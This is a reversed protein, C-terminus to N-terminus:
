VSGQLARWIREPTAPMDIHHVGKQSLADSVASIVAPLSGVVGAEGAGKVGLPNTPTPVPHSLVTLAPLDSARPMAYDMFSATLLQGSGEEYVLQELLAQGLGQAVGGQIQGAMLLPNLVRGVDDAVLYSLVELGGTEPDLEVECIHCGNPFSCNQTSDFSEAAYSRKRQRALEQLTLGRDTGVILFRGDEFVIDAEAAELEEAADPKAEAIIQEAVKGLSVGIAAASRSGFTGTGKEIVGTDGDRFRIDEVEIGLTEGLLQAFTTRHGQGTDSTGVRLNAGGTEDIALAAFEPQPSGIPGGAIEIPNAIGLGRLKGRAASEERRASFGAWDAAKLAKEMVAPFDGSDYSYTLPTKYPMEDPQIFNRRRVEPLDLGLDRAVLDCLREIIYTAEPRGAGRYPAMSQTHTHIGEIEVYVPGTKYVGVVTGINNVMPNTGTQGLYAGINALISVKLGKFRGEEDYAIAATAIQERAHNDGLFSELRSSAWRVPRGLERAAFLALAYEPYPGNKIGFAGGVDGSIVRVKERPVGLIAAMGDAIRHPAQTGLYLLYSEEAADYLALANRNELAAAAVRSIDLRQELRRPAAAFASETAERDGLEVRFARNDPVEDWVAPAGKAIAAEPTVVADEDEIDLEILELADEAAERTEAVVVALPDGVYRVRDSSLPYFPPTFFDSGDPKPPKSRPEFRGMGAAKIDEATYIALVGPAQRAESTELRKIVGNAAPSRLVAMATEGEAAQDATYHGQGLLLRDDELRVQSQGIKFLM